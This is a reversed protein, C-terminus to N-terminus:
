KKSTRFAIYAYETFATIFGVAMIFSYINNQGFNVFIVGAAFAIAASVGGIAAPAIYRKQRGALIRLWVALIIILVGNAAHIAIPGFEHFVLYPKVKPITVFLNSAMGLIFQVVLLGVLWRALPRLGDKLYRHVFITLAWSLLAILIIAAIILSVTLLM